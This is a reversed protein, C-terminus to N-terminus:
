KVKDDKTPTEQALRWALGLVAGLHAAMGALLLPPAVLNVLLLGLLVGALGALLHRNTSLNHRLKKIVFIYTVILPFHFLVWGPLGIQLLLYFYFNHSYDTNVLGVGSPYFPDISYFSFERGMGRGLFLSEPTEGIATIVGLLEQWRNLVSLDSRFAWLDLFRTQLFHSLGLNTSIILSIILFGPLLFVFMRRVTAKDRIKYFRVVILLSALGVLWYSRTMGLVLGLLAILFGILASIRVGRAVSGIIMPLLLTCGIVSYFGGMVDSLHRLEQLHTVPEAVARLRLIVEVISGVAILAYALKLEALSRFAQTISLAMIGFLFLPTSRRLAYISNVGNATAWIINFPLWAIILLLLPLSIPIGYLRNTVILYIGIAAVNLISLIGLSVEIWDIGETSRQLFAVIITVYVIIILFKRM